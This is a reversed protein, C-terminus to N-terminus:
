HTTLGGSDEGGIAKDFIPKIYIGGAVIELQEESLEVDVVPTAEAKSKQEKTSEM